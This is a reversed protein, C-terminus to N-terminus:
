FHDDEAEAQSPIGTHMGEKTQEWADKARLGAQSVFAKSL